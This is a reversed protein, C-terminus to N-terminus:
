YDKWSSNWTFGDPPSMISRTWETWKAGKSDFILKADNEVVRGAVGELTQNGSFAATTSKNSIPTGSLYTTKRVRYVQMPRNLYGVAPRSTFPCDTAADWPPDETVVRDDGDKWGLMEETMTFADNGMEVNEESSLKSRDPFRFNRLSESAPDIATINVHWEFRDIANFRVSRIVYDTGDEDNEPTWLDGSDDDESDLDAFNAADGEAPLWAFLEDRTGFFWWKSSISLAKAKDGDVNDLM